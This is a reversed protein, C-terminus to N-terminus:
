NNALIVSLYTVLLQTVKVHFLNEEPKFITNKRQDLILKRGNDM